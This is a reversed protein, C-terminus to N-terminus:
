SFNSIFSIVLFPTIAIVNNSDAATELACILFEFVFGYFIKFLASHAFFISFAPFRLVDGTYIPIFVGFYSCNSIVSSFGIL